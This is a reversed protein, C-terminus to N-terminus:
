LLDLLMTSMRGGPNNRVSRPCVGYTQVRDGKYLVLWNQIVHKHVGESPIVDRNQEVKTSIVCLYTCQVVGSYTQVHQRQCAQIHLHSANNPFLCPGFESRPGCVYMCRIYMFNSVFGSFFERVLMRSTNLAARTVPWVWKQVRMCAYYASPRAAYVPSHGIRRIGVGIFSRAAWHGSSSMIVKM